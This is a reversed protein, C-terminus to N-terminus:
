NAIDGGRIVSKERRKDGAARKGAWSLMRKEERRKTTPEETDSHKREKKRERVKAEHQGGPTAQDVILSLRVCGNKLQDAVHSKVSDVFLADEADRASM